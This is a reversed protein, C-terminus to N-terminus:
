LIEKREVGGKGITGVYDISLDSTAENPTYVEDVIPELILDFQDEQEIWSEDIDIDTKQPFGKSRLTYLKLWLDDPVRSDWLSELGFTNSGFLRQTVVVNTRTTAQFSKYTISKCFRTSMSAMM